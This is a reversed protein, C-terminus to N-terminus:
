FDPLLFSIDLDTKCIKIGSDSPENLIDCDHKSYRKPNLKDKRIEDCANKIEEPTPDYNFKSSM